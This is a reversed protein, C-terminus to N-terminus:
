VGDGVLEPGCLRRRAGLWLWVPGQDTRRLLLPRCDVNPPLSASCRSPRRGRRWWASTGHISSTASSPPMSWSGALLAMVLEAGALDASAFVGASERRIRTRNLAAVLLDIAAASRRLSQRIVTRPLGQELCERLVLDSM